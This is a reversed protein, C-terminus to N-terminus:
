WVSLLFLHITKLKEEIDCRCYLLPTVGRPPSFLFSFPPQCPYILVGGRHERCSFLPSTGRRLPIFFPIFFSASLFYM